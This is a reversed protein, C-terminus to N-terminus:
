DLLAYEAYAGGGVLGFVRDGVAFKTVADGKAVVEGAVELGLIPSEGVPPPYLGKRQLLDARNVGVAEVRILLDECKPQPTPVEGVYLPDNPESFLLAKM